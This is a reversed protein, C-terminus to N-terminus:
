ILIYLMNTAIHMGCRIGENNADFCFEEERSCIYIHVVFFLLIHLVPHHVNSQLRLPIYEFSTKPM